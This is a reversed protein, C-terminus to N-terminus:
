ENKGILDWTIPTGKAIDNRAIRGIIQDFYRPHLGDAPRISRINEETLFEGEQIDKVAFLSRRYRRSEREKKSPEYLVKGLAKEVRRISAVMKKFEGPDASFESDPGGFKRSLTFHKEVICAGISVAAIAVDTGLTHDSLGVPVRFTEVMNLITRLNMEEVPSPYASNCKLLAIQSNGQARITQVAEDIEALRAMGTSVIVPKGTSAIKKLLPIDIIEFSAVKYAPVDMRELFEVATHDFPSSFLDISEKEALQKLKPQWEWPTYASQYLEYLHKGEWITGKVNFYENKVDLTITDPTYTQLKIADAGSKKAAQIIRAAMDFDQCHNASMEAIIYVPYGPGIKRKNILIHM